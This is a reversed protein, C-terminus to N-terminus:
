PRQMIMVPSGGDRREGRMMKQMESMPKLDFDKPIDFDKAEIKKDLDIKTVEVEMVRNRRMKMQYAMVFGDLKDLGNVSSTQIGFGSMGGTYNLHDFKIDPTFWAITTDKTGLFGTTIILAKKCVYGAFKKTESTVIIEPASPNTIAQRRRGSASTDSAMRAKMMSDMQLRAKAQDADSAYFGTKNGMMEILTTTFLAANNRISTTRGIDSKNVIKVMSDKYYITSKTEGDGFNRFNFGGGGQQVSSADDEEPAIVNTTTQIIAQSIIKPQAFAATALLTSGFLLIVKM